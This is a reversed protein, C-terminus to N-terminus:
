INKGKNLHKVLKKAEHEYFKTNFILNGAPTFILCQPWLQGRHTLNLYFYKDRPKPPYLKYREQDTM